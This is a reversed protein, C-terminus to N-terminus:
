INRLLRKLMILTYFIEFIQLCKILERYQPYSKGTRKDISKNTLRYTGMFEGLIEVKKMFLEKQKECQVLALRSNKSRNTFPKTLSLDGLLSGLIFEDSLTQETQSFYRIIGANKGKTRYTKITVESVGFYNAIEKDTKGEKWLKEFTEQVIKKSYNKKKINYTNRLHKSITNASVGM